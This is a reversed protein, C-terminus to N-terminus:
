YRENKEFGVGREERQTMVVSPSGCSGDKTQTYHTSHSPLLTCVNRLIICEDQNVCHLRKLLTDRLEKTLNM